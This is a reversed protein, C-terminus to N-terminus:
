TWGRQWYVALGLLEKVGSTTRSLAEADPLFDLASDYIPFRVQIDTAVPIVDLGVREFVARARPMHAGSTVLLGTEWGRDEFIAATNVANERTNRSETELVIAPAPTGLEVLLDAILTAEPSISTHWPFNGGTVVIRPSKGARYLRFAGLVRDASESLEAYVRPPLPQGLVGGLLIIADAEPLREVQVAPYQAELRSLLWNAFAPTAAIWLSVLTIGLLALGIRRFRAAILVFAFAGLLLAAGLPYVFVPLLKTLFLSM